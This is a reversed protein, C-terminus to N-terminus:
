DVVVKKVRMVFFNRKAVLIKGGAVILDFKRIKITGGNGFVDAEKVGM